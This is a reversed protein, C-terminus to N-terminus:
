PTAATTPREGATTKATAADAARAQKGATEVAGWVAKSRQAPIVKAKHSKNLEPTTLLEDRL